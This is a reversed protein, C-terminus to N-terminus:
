YSFHDSFIRSLYFRPPDLSIDSIKDKFTFTYACNLQPVGTHKITNGLIYRILNKVERPTQKIELHYRDKFFSFGKKLKQQSKLYYLITSSLAKMGIKLINAHGAEIYLHIHDYQITAYVIRLGKKRANKVAEKLVKKFEATRLNTYHISRKLTVHLPAGSPINPRKIHPIYGLNKHAPRGAAKINYLTSEKKNKRKKAASSLKMLHTRDTATFSTLKIEASTKFNVQGLFTKFSTFQSKLSHNTVTKNIVVM